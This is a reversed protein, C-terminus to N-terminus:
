LQIDGDTCIITTIVSGSSNWLRHKSINNRMEITGLYIIESLNASSSLFYDGIYSVNKGIEITELPAANFSRSGIYKSDIKAYKINSYRFAEGEIKEINSPIDIKELKQNGCFAFKGVTTVSNPIIYEGEKAIPYIVIKSGDKSYLVGDEVKYGTNDVNVKIESLLSCGNFCGRNINIDNSIILINKLKTNLNFAFDSIDYVNKGLEVSEFLTGAFAWAGISKSNINVEEIKSGRFASSEINEINDGIVLMKITDNGRFADYKIQTVAKGNHERPIALYPNNCEGIGSVTYAVIDSEISTENGSSDLGIFALDNSIMCYEFTIEKDGSTIGEEIENLAMYGEIEPAEFHYKVDLM